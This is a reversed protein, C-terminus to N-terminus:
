PHEPDRAAIPRPQSEAPNLRGRYFALWEKWIAQAPGPRFLGFHGLRDLGLSSPHLDRRIVSASRFRELLATVARPPAIRDDTAAYALVDGQYAALTQSAAPDVSLFWDESRGWLAWERAAGRPLPVGLGTWGPVTRFAAAAAPLVCWWYLTLSLRRLGDWYRPSGLQSAVLVAARAEHLAPTLGLTQGGFSHGLLFTPEPGKSQLWRMGAVADRTAWVSLSATDEARAARSQGMGRYDLTLCRFGRGAFWAAVHKLARQPVGIGPLILLSAEVADVPLFACASVEVGDQATLEFPRETM